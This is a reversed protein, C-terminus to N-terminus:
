PEGEWPKEHRKSEVLGEEELQEMLRAARPYGIHLRRQLLSASIHTSEACLQRAKELFPDLDLQEVSLASFQQAARDLSPPFHKEGWERWFAVVRDMEEDSVFCGRLRKPKHAETSLYLMDGRGLLKEAGISDLITRSDVSSVVAFSIRTPFNAKILGTIVDVSPRQTAVVLHIGTARSLQALRCILPEVVDPATMMLDALEDITVVIYPLPETVKPSRNYTDINRVGLSAFRRYRHDMERTVRRLTEIARDIEVVVPTLLHPIGNFTIMEVRKPDILVLRVEAPNAQMLLGTIICNLCVTKGSGTAGAILIHPMKAIDAIVPEGAAGQGLAVVLRSKSRAKQFAPSEIVHRLSVLATSVNPVEIGVLPKGPVPAEIRVHTVALALALDNALSTIRDVKVRTKSVEELHVRPNGNKDLKPKGNQDKGVVKRYRRIWGPEVGFQTVSPGPNVQVVKVEVGYSALAEEILEAREADNGRTFSAKPAEDLLQIAPLGRDIGPLKVDETAPQEALGVTAESSKTETTAPEIHGPEGIERKGQPRQLVAPKAKFLAAIKVKLLGALSLLSTCFKKVLHWFGMALLTLLNRPARYAFGALARAFNLSRGPAVLIVGLSVLGLLRAWEYSMGLILQGLYGAMTVETLSVGAITIAPRFIAMIGIVAVSLLLVGLWSNWHRLVRGLRGRWLIWTIIVVWILVPIVALGLFRLTETVILERLFFLTGIILGVLVV